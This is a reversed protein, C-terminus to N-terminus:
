CCESKACGVVSSCDALFEARCTVFNLRCYFYPCLIFLSIVIKRCKTFCCEMTFFTIGSPVAERKRLRPVLYVQITLMVDRGNQWFVFLGRVCRISSVTPGCGSQFGWLFITKCRAPSLSRCLRGCRLTIDGGLLSQQSRNNQIFHMKDLRSSNKYCDTLKPAMRPEHTV